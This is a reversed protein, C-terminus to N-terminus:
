VIEHKYFRMSDEAIDNLRKAEMLDVTVCLARRRSMGLGDTLAPRALRVRGGGAVRADRGMPRPM